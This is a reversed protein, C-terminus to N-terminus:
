KIEAKEIILSDFNIYDIFDEKLFKVMNYDSLHKRHKSLIIPTEIDLIYCIDKLYQESLKNENYGGKLNYICDKIVKSDKMIKAWLVTKTM